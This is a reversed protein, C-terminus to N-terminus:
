DKRELYSLNSILFGILTPIWISIISLVLSMPIISSLSINPLLFLLTAERTGLGAISIPLISVLTSIPFVSLVQILSIDMSFAQTIIFGQFYVLLWSTLSLFLSFLLKKPNKTYIKYASLINEYSNIIKEHFSKSFHKIPKLMKLFFNKNKIMFNFFILGICLIVFYAVIFFSLEFGKSSVFALSGFTAILILSFIDIVKDAIISILGKTKPMDLQKKLYFIKMVEGSRSPTIVGYALGVIWTLFSKFWNYDGFGQLKILYRWKESKLFITIFNFLFAILLLGLNANSLSTIINNVGATYILYIILLFGIFSLWKLKM